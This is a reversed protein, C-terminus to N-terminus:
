RIYPIIEESTWNEKAKFLANFRDMINEPLRDEPFYQIINAKNDIIALGHLMSESIPMGDPVSDHWAQLFEVLNFKGANILIVEALFKAVKDTYSCQQVGDISRTPETYLEFLNDLIEKPVFEELSDVTEDYNVANYPMSYEDLVNLMYSLVRFHYEFDLIRVKGNITVTNLDKLALRLEENSAQIVKQLDKFSYLDEQKIEFEMEIGKYSSKSLLQKLKKLKPKALVPSLYKYFIGVTSVDRIHRNNDNNLDEKFQLGKVLLLSNSTERELLDYTKNETCLVANEEDDGKIYLVQGTELCNALEKDIELLKYKENCHHVESDDFYIAQSTPLIDSEKLKALNLIENM